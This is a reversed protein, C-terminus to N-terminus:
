RSYLEVIRQPEVPVRIEERRPTRLVEGSLTDVDAQLWPPVGAILETAERALPEVPAGPLIAVVDHPRVEYSAVDVRRGNVTVHGHSVFQRAQRRTAAFGLRTLVNDLRRELLALLEDGVVGTGSSAREFVRRFQRERLGYFHKARQKELLQEAYSSLRRRRRGHEGPPYPRRDLPGKGAAARRGKQGLDAGLRREVKGVPERAMAVDM